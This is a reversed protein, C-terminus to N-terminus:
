MVCHSGLWVFPRFQGFFGLVMELIDRRARARDPSGDPTGETVLWENKTLQVPSVVSTVNTVLWETKM